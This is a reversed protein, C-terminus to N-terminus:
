IPALTAAGNYSYQFTSLFLLLLIHFLSLVNYIIISTGGSGLLHSFPDLRTYAYILTYWTVLRLLLEPM